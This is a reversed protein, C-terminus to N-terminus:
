RNELGFYEKAFDNVIGTFDFQSLEDLLQQIKEEMLGELQTLLYMVIESGIDGSSNILYRYLDEILAPGIKRYKNVLSWIRATDEIFRKDNIKWCEIYNEILTSDIEGPVTVPIFAFRRM